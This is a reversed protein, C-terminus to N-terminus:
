AQLRDRGRGRGRGGEIAMMCAHQMTTNYHLHVRHQRNLQDVTYTSPSCWSWQWLPVTHSEPYTCVSCPCVTNQLSVQFESRSVQRSCALGPRSGPILHHPPGHVWQTSSLPLRTPPQRTSGPPPLYAEPPGGVPHLIPTTTAPPSMPHLITQNVLPHHVHISSLSLDM